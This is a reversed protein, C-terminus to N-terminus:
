GCMTEEAQTKFRSKNGGNIKWPLGLRSGLSAMSIPPSTHLLFARACFFGCGEFGCVWVSQSATGGCRAAGPCTKGLASGLSSNRDRPSTTLGGTKKTLNQSHKLLVTEVRRTCRAIGPLLAMATFFASFKWPPCLQHVYRPSSGALISRPHRLPAPM